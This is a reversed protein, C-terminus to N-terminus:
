SSPKGPRSRRVVLSAPSPVSYASASEAKLAELEPSFLSDVRSGEPTQDTGRVDLNQAARWDVYHDPLADIKAFAAADIKGCYDRVCRLLGERTRCFSRGRWGSNKRRPNGKRQQLIWQLPDLVVRWNENLQAILRNSPHAPRTSVDRSGLMPPESTGQERVGKKPVSDVVTTEDNTNFNKRAETSTVAIARVSSARM